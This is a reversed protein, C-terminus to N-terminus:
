TESEDPDDFAFVGQNERMYDGTTKETDPDLYSDLIKLCEDLKPYVFDALTDTGVKWEAVSFMSELLHNLKDLDRQSIEM